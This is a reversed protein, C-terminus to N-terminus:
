LVIGGDEEMDKGIGVTATRYAVIYNFLILLHIFLVVILATGSFGSASKLANKFKFSDTGGEISFNRCQYEGLTYRGSSYSIVPLKANNSLQSLQREALAALDAILSAKKSPILIISWSNVANQIDTEEKKFNQYFEDFGSGIIANKQITEFNSASERTHAIHNDDMFKNLTEDCLQGPGTANRLGTGTTSIATSEFDKYEAFMADIKQLDQKAYLKIDEKQDYVVFFHMIGGFLSAPIAFIIYVALLAYEAKKWTDLNNEAGKAKILFWLLLAASATILVSVFIDRGLEGGSLYSLGIFSFGWLLLLGVFAIINAITIRGSQQKNAM